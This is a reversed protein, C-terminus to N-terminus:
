KFYFLFKSKSLMFKWLIQELLKCHIHFYGLIVLKNHMSHFPLSGDCLVRYGELSHDVLQITFAFVGLSSLSTYIYMRHQSTAKHSPAGHPTQSIYREGGRINLATFHRGQQSTNLIFVFMFRSVLPQDRLVSCFFLPFELSAGLPALHSSSM